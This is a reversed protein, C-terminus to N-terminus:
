DNPKENVINLAIDFMKAAANNTSTPNLYIVMIDELGKKLEDIRTLFLCIDDQSEQYARKEIYICETLPIECEMCIGPNLDIVDHERCEYVTFAEYPLKAATTTITTNTM